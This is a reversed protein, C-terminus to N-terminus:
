RIQFQLKYTTSDGDVQFNVNYTGADLGTTSFNYVYGGSGGLAADYRFNLDPTGGDVDVLGGPAIPSVRTLGVSEVTVGPSSVNKGVANLLQLKLPITSGSKAAKTQDSLPFVTTFLAPLTLSFRLRQSLTIYDWLVSSDGKATTDGFSITPSYTGSRDANGIYLLVDDVYLQYSSGNSPIEVRYTHFADRTDMPVVLTWGGRGQVEVGNNALNFNWAYLGSAASVVVAQGDNQVVQAKWELSAPFSHNFSRDVVYYSYKGTGLTNANLHGGTVSYVSSENLGSSASHVAGRSSPLAGDDFQYDFQYDFGQGLASSVGSLMTVAALWRALWVSRLHTSKL